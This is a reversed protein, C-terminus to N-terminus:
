RRVLPLFIKTDSAGNSGGLYLYARGRRSGGLYNGAGVIVDSYGDGNVNGATAVSSGFRDGVNEGTLTLAATPSLGGPGGLYIYARGTRSGSSYGSAGVIIDSYGDGNINGATAVSSGFVDGANEGTLTLAPTPSLGNPGGLYVYAKGKRAPDNLIPAGVIIDAYGDGNVDGATAVSRGFYDGTNQSTLSLAPTQSLGSPGGLYLYLRGTYSLYGDAGVIVDAYGDGNVDGAYAASDAFFDSDNEGTLTLAPTASLGGPGGMYIYVRGSYNADLAGVLVDAYGDRNVDGASAVPFGFGEFNDTGTLTLAPTASLGSPGGLYIYARGTMTVSGPYHWAGVIVDAYGDGNVDGATAVSAGFYNVDNEGTLTLSPTASLGGPGGMYVYARGKDTHAPYYLAGVIVDAYGDANVDGATAVDGGFVDNDNEGTLTLAPTSTLTNASSPSLNDAGAASPRVALQISRCSVSDDTCDKSNVDGSTADFHAINRVEVPAMANLGDVIFFAVFLAWLCAFSLSKASAPM